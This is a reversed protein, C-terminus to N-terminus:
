LVFLTIQVTISGLSVMTYNHELIEYGKNKLYEAAIEEGVDGTSKNKTKNFSM